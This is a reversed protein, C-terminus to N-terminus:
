LSVVIVFLFCFPLCSTGEARRWRCPGEESHRRAELHPNYGSEKGLYM